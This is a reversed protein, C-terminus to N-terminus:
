DHTKLVSQLNARIIPKEEEEEVDEEEFENAEEDEALLSPSVPRKRKRSRAPTKMKEDTHIINSITDPLYPNAIYPKQISNLLPHEFASSGFAIDQFISSFSREYSYSVM